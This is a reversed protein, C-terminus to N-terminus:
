EEELPCCGGAVRFDYVTAAYERGAFDFTVPSSGGEPDGFVPDAPLVVNDLRANAPIWVLEAGGSPLATSAEFTAVARWVDSMAGNHELAGTDSFGIGCCWSTASWVSGQRLRFYQARYDRTSDLEFLPGRGGIILRKEVM